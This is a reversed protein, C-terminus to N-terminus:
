CLYGYLVNGIYRTVHYCKIWSKNFDWRKFLCAIYFLSFFIPQFFKFNTQGPKFVLPKWFFGSIQRNWFHYKYKQCLTIQLKADFQQFTRYGITHVFGIFLATTVLAISDNAMRWSGWFIFYKQSLPLTQAPDCVLSLGDATVEYTEPDVEIQPTTANHIM